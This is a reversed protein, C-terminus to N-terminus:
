SLGEVFNLGSKLVLFFVRLPITNRMSAVLFSHFGRQKKGCCGYARVYLMNRIESIM